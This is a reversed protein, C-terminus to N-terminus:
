FGESAAMATPFVKIVRDVQTMSLIDNVKEQVGALRLEGGARRLRGSCTVLIGVGTSDVVSIGTMDFVVKKEARDILDKVRREVELCDRGLCIRGSMQLVVVGPEVRNEQIMLIM